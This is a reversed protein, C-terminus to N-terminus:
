VKKDFVRRLVCGVIGTICVLILRFRYALFVQFFLILGTLVKPERQISTAASPAAIAVILLLVFGMMGRGTDFKQLVHERYKKKSTLSRITMMLMFLLFFFALLFYFMLAFNFEILFRAPSGLAYRADWFEGALLFTCYGLLLFTIIRLGIGWMREGMKAPNRFIPGPDDSIDEDDLDEDDAEDDLRDYPDKGYKAYNQEPEEEGKFKLWGLGKKEGDEDAEFPNVREDTKRPRDSRKFLKFSKFDYTKEEPNQAREERPSNNQSNETKEEQGNAERRKIGETLSGVPELVVTKSLNDENSKDWFQLDPNMKIVTEPIFDYKSAIVEEAIQDQQTDDIIIEETPQEIVETEQGQDDSGPMPKGCKPCFKWANENGCYPCIM